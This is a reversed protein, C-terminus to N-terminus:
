PGFSHAGPHAYRPSIEYPNPKAPNIVLTAITVPRAHELAKNLRRVILNKYM